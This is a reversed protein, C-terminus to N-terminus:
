MVEPVDIGLLGLSNTIVQKAAAVLRLRFAKVNEDASLVPCNNYFNSFTKSLEFAYNSILLPRMDKAARQVEQPFRTLYDVLEVEDKSLTYGVEISDPISFQVKRLISNARVAAYQIYPAAQGNVDMASEWDFTIIKTNDRSLLSYKLAGLAVTRAVAEKEEDPLDQNKQQVIVLARKEAENVLDELLVVTGERSAITVNGPLNVIEYALHYCKEAWPYGLLEMVKFIQKLYLSQRVDIVYVSRDLQYENFKMIALSLDKTSYLSTGDSRLIVLVRYKEKTGMIEDLDVIVAGEPREDKALGKEILADVIEKGSDEVESEFYIRDFRIGLLDYVEDFAELSWQRTKKWLAVIEPDREDWRKFLARVQEDLDPNEDLLNCAEAYLGGMWRTMGDSPPQEGAHNNIYNWLWKIVHLGIDGIYNTRIVKNGAFELIDCVSSGLVMNRLHGVHFAKHTNPQSYEVMITKGSDEGRGFDATSDIVTDVVRKAYLQSDFYLNIYGNVAEVKEFEGPLELKDAIIQAVEAARSKINIGKKTKAELSATTFMSTSIGWHGSFPIWSWKLQAMPLGSDKLITEIQSQIIEQEKEFMQNLQIDESFM